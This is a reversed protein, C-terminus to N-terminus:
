YACGCILEGAFGQMEDSLKFKRARLLNEENRLKIEEDRLMNGEDRLNDLKSYLADLQKEVLTDKTDKLIKVLEACNIEATLIDAELKSIQDNVSDVSKEVSMLDSNVMKLEEDVADKDSPRGYPLIFQMIKPQHDSEDKGVGNMACKIRSPEYQAATLFLWSETNTCVRDGERNGPINQFRSSAKTHQGLLLATTFSHTMRAIAILVLIRSIHIIVLKSFYVM